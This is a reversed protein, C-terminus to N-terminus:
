PLEDIPEGLVVLLLLPGLLLPALLVAGEGVGFADGLVKTGTVSESPPASVCSCHSVRLFSHMSLAPMGPALPVQESHIGCSRGRQVGRSRIQTRPTSVPALAPSTCTTPWLPGDGVHASPKQPVM